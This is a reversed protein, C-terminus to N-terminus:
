RTLCFKTSSALASEAALPACVTIRSNEQKITYGANYSENAGSCAPTTCTNKGGAPDVPLEPIYAPVLCPRIDHRITYGGGVQAIPLNSLPAEVTPIAECAPTSSSTFLGGQDAVRNSVANLISAVNATRQSNRAQAFQRLPNVAVLVVTALIALMGIVILIEILTFGRVRPNVNKRSPRQYMPYPNPPLACAHIM